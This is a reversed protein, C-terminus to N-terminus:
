HKMLTVATMNSHCFILLHNENKRLIENNRDPHQPNVKVKM